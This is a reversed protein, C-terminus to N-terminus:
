RLFYLAAKIVEEPSIAKLCRLSKCKVKECPACGVKKYLVIAKETIYRPDYRRIYGPGFMAILPTKLISGMHMPGTDNSIFLNCRKILAGLEGLGLQGTLDIIRVNITNIIKKGLVTDNKDGTIVFKCSIKKNIEFIVKFFNELPWRHSLKGGPHIGILIDKEGIGEERLIKDIKKENKNNIVFDINKDTVDAGLAKATDIDYEMEFKNKTDTEPIKVDFFYGRGETNRGVKVKPNIFDLLFKIKQAGRKSVLTRMNIAMDFKEKRLRFLANLNKFIDKINRQFILTKDIYALENVLELVRSFVLLYIKAEPFLKKLARLAPSSLLVDGIGGLNIILIKTYIINEKTDM